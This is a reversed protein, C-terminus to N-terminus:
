EDKADKVKLFSTAMLAVLGVVILMTIQSAHAAFAFASADVRNLGYIVLTEIVMFHWSGIGGPSPFVMGYSAMVFVTLGILIGYHATYSFAFFAVYIMVFYMTWIFLSHGIFLWKHELHAISKLGDVFNVIFKRLKKYLKMEAIKKRFIVLLAFTLVGIVVLSVILGTSQTIRAVTAQASPNNNIFDFVVSYQTMVVVLTLILLIVVDIVREVFVTGLLSTFPVKEYRSTISCRVIEGSRPIALNSLYMVMVSYFLTKGRTKYGIPDILLKWRM